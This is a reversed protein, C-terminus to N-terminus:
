VCQTPSADRVCRWFVTETRWCAVWTPRVARSWMSSTSAPWTEWPIQRRRVTSRVAQWVLWTVVLSVTALLISLNIAAMKAIPHGFFATHFSFILVPLQPWVFGFNAKEQLTRVPPAATVASCTDATVASCTHSPNNKWCCAPYLRELTRRTSVNCTTTSLKQSSVPRHRSLQLRM